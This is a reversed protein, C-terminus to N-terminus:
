NSLRDLGAADFTMNKVDDETLFALNLVIRVLDSQACDNTDDDDGDVIYEKRDDLDASFYQFAQQYLPNRLLDYTHVGKLHFKGPETTRSKIDDM